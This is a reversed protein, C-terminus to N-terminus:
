LIELKASNTCHAKKKMLAMDKYEGETMALTGYVLLETDSHAEDQQVFGSSEYGLASCM